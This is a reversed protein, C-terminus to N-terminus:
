HEDDNMPPDSESVLQSQVAERQMATSSPMEHFFLFLESSGGGKNQWLEQINNCQTIADKSVDSSEGFYLVTHAKPKNAADRKYTVAFVAPVGTPTVCNGLPGAADFRFRRRRGWSISM